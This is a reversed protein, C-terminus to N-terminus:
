MCACSVREMPVSRIFICAVTNVYCGSHLVPGFCCGGGAAVVLGCGDLGEVSGAWGGVWGNVGVWEFVRRRVDARLGSHGHHRCAGLGDTRPGEVRHGCASSGHWGGSSHAFARAFM